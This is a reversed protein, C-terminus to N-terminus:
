ENNMDFEIGGTIKAVLNYLLCVIVTYITWIVIFFAPVIVAIMTSNPLTYGRASINAPPRHQGLPISSIILLGLVIGIILYIIFATKTTSWVDIKKLQYKM